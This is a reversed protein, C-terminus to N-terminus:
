VLQKHVNGNTAKLADRLKCSACVRVCVSVWEYLSFVDAAAGPATSWGAGGRFESGPPAARRWETMINIWENMWIWNNEPTKVYSAQLERIHSKGCLPNHIVTDRHERMDM